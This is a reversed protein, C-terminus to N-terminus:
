LMRTMCCSSRDDEGAFEIPRNEKAPTATSQLQEQQIQPDEPQMLQPQTGIVDHEVDDSSRQGPEVDVVITCGVNPSPGCKLKRPLVTPPSPLPRFSSKHQGGNSRLHTNVITDVDNQQQDTVEEESSMSPISTDDWSDESLENNQKNEIKSTMEKVINMKRGLRLPINETLTSM